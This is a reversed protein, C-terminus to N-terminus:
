CKDVTPRIFLVGKTDYLFLDVAEKPSVNM